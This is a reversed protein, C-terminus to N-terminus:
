FPYGIALNLVTRSIDTVNSFVWRNGNPLWPERVPVALDVRLVLIHVDFRLGVGTGVAVQSLFASTFQSGPRSTDAQRTWVNGADVFVAGKVISFLPFRLETNAELKIDGPQEILITGPQTSQYYTGPGLLNSRFARIDNTGGAFFEKSFPMTSSNGYAIGIGADVRSALVFGSNTQSSLKLYHRFDVEFRDYQSFPTGLLDIQKGKAIDAGTFLGLLNASIDVNANFYFNNRNHNPRAQTNINFNYNPGIIFQREISRALTLNKNLSDQFTPNINSPNVLNISFINLTHEKIQNEKFIYGYSVKYSSLDYEGSRDFINYSLEIRTRPVYASNTHVTFPAVFRPIFLNLDLGATRTSIEQGAGIFQEDLGASVSATFLEAGRFLNRNKWTVSLQGGTTNDSRSLGTAQFQLSKKETPTLYYFANLKNPGATDTEVFRAKVFKYVGLTVLRNLSLNHADRNYVDGPKFVLTRSFIVPRFKHLSDLIKYGDYYIFPARASTDTNIDYDAFVVVDNLRYVNRAKPATQPILRLIADIRHNGVTTDADLQLYDPSFYYFGKQKLRDDIRTRENKIDDLDYVDGKHLLSHKQLRSINATLTDTVPPYTINRFTYPQGVEATYTDTWEQKRIRHSLLVTDFFYGENELRNQLIERNKEASAASALVPAEGVKYKLWHKLGKDKKPTGALNYIWLKYRFGLISANPRPRVNSALDAKLAKVRSKKIPVSSTLAINPGMYLYQNKALHKSYNCAIALLLFTGLLVLTGSREPRRTKYSGTRRDM